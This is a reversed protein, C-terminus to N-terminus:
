CSFTSIGHSHSSNSAENNLNKYTKVEILMRVGTLSSKPDCYKNMVIVNVGGSIVFPLRDDIVNLFNNVKHVDFLSLSQNELFNKLHTNLYKMYKEVQVDDSEAHDKLWSYPEIVDFAFSIYKIPGNILKQNGFM